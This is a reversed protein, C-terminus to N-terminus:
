HQQQWPKFFSFSIYSDNWNVRSSNGFNMIKCFDYKRFTFYLCIYVLVLGTTDISITSFRRYQSLRREYITERFFIWETVPGRVWKQVPIELWYFFLWVKTKWSSQIGHKFSHDKDLDFFKSYLLIICATAYFINNFLNWLAYKM